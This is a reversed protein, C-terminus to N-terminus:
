LKVSNDGTKQASKQIYVYLEIGVVSTEVIEATSEAMHEM